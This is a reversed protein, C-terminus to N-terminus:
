IYKPSEISPIYHQHVVPHEHVCSLCNGITIAIVNFVRKRFALWALKTGREFSVARPFWWAIKRYGSARTDGSGLYENCCLYVAIVAVFLGLEHYSSCLYEERVFQM